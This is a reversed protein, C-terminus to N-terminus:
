GVLGFCRWRVGRLRHAGGKRARIVIGEFPQVREKGSEVIRVYVRVTDGVEVVTRDAPATHLSKILENVAIVERCFAERRM